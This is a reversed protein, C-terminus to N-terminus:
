AAPQWALPTSQQMPLALSRVALIPASRTCSARTQLDVLRGLRTIRRPCWATPQSPVPAARSTYALTQCLRLSESKYCEGDATWGPCDSQVDKCTSKCAECTVPCNRIMFEPDTPLGHVRLPCAHFRSHSNTGHCTTGGNFLRAAARVRTASALRVGAQASRRSIRASPRACAARRRACAFCPTPSRVHVDLASKHAGPVLPLYMQQSTAGPLSGRVNSECEGAQAWSGCSADTDNCSHTCTGCSLPCIEAMYKQAGPAISRPVSPTADVRSVRRLTAFISPAFLSWNPLELFRVANEGSCEGDRAWNACDTRKDNCIGGYVVAVLLAAAVTMAFPAQCVCVCVCPRVASAYEASFPHTPRRGSAAGPKLCQVGHRPLLSKVSEIALEYM